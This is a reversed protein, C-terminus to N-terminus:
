DNRVVRFGIMSSWTSPENAYVYGLRLDDAASYLGGGRAVRETSSCWDFCWEWVNGSMDYLGLANADKSMVQATCSTDYVAVAITPNQKPNVVGMKNAAYETAGSAYTGPTWYLGGKEIAGHSNDNGKYRAALEWENSSPLRFGKDGAAPDSINDCVTQNTADKVVEGGSKYVPSFGALESLANCWVITDRWCVRTVPELKENTQPGTPVTPPNGDVEVRAGDSGETPYYTLHDFKYGQGVAWIYVYYWLEYTVETEAIWYANDVKAASADDFALLASDTPFTLGGPISIVDFSVGEVTHTFREPGGGGSDPEVTVTVIYSQESGDGATVTYTVSNTFNQPVGSEPTISVGTHGITPALATVITGHPITVAITYNTENITGTVKPSTFSFSTIAKTSDSIRTAKVTYTKTTGNQATVIISATKAEGEKLNSLVVPGSVSANTDAKTGTVTVSEVDNAVSLAYSTIAPDFQPVLTGSSVTLASLDANSSKGGKRGGGGGCGSLVITLVLTALLIHISNIKENLFM